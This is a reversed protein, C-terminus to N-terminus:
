YKKAFAEEFSPASSGPGTRPSTSRASALSVPLSPSPTTVVTSDSMEKRLEERIRARYAEPDASIERVARSRMAYDYAWRAPDLQRDMHDVLSPNARAVAAFEDLLEGADKHERRVAAESLERRIKIPQIRLQHEVYRSYGEPDALLDPREPKPAPKEAQATAAARERMVQAMQEELRIARAKWDKRKDREDRYAAFPVTHPDQGSAPPADSAETGALAAPDPPPTDGKPESRVPPSTAEPTVATPKAESQVHDSSVETLFDKLEGSM